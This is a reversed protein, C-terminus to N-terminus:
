SKTPQTEHKENYIELATILVSCLFILTGFLFLPGCCLMTEFKDQYVLYPANMVTMAPIWGYIATFTGIPLCWRYIRNMQGLGNKTIAGIAMVIMIALGIANIWYFWPIDSITVTSDKVEHLLPGIVAFGSFFGSLCFIVLASKRVERETVKECM